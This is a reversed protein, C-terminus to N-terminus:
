LLKGQQKAWDDPHKASKSRNCTPCLCQLNSPWNSGGLALPMIHDVHYKNAGSKFLKTKCNACLGKQSAFIARVDTATHTGEANRKRARRNRCHAAIKEPNAARYEAKQANLAERNAARYAADKANISERNAARYAANYAAITERNAARYAAKKPAITERSAVSYAAWRDAITERNAARYEAMRASIKELNAARYEAYHAASCARCLSCLGDKKHTNKNFETKSKETNCKTCKKM